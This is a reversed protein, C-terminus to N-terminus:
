HHHQWRRSDDARKVRWHLRGQNGAPESTPSVQTGGSNITGYTFITIASDDPQPVSAGQVQANIGIGGSTITDVPSTSMKIAGSMSIASIGFTATGTVTVGQGLVVDLSGSATTAAIGTTSGTVNGNDVIVTTGTGGSNTNIGKGGASTITGASILAINAASTTLNIGVNNTGSVSISAGQNIEVTIFDGATSDTSTFSDTGSGSIIANSSLVYTQQTSTTESVPGSAGSVIPNAVAQAPSLQIADGSINFAETSPPANILNYTLVQSSGNETVTLTSGSITATKM